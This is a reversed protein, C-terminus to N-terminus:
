SQNIRVFIAFDDFHASTLVSVRGATTGNGEIGGSPIFSALYGSHKLKNDEGITLSRFMESLFQATNKFARDCRRVCCQLM